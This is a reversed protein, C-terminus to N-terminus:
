FGEQKFSGLAADFQEKLREFDHTRAGGILVNLHRHRQELRFVFTRPIGGLVTDFEFRADDIGREKSSDSQMDPMRGIMKALNSSRFVSLARARLSDADEDDQGLTDSLWLIYADERPNVLMLMDNETQGHVVGWAAAPRDIGYPDDFGRSKTVTLSEPYQLKGRWVYQRLVSDIGFLGASAYAAIAIVTFGAGLIMGAQALRAGGVTSGRRTVRRYAVAGCAIAALTGVVTFAGILALLLSLVALGSTSTAPQAPPPAPEAVLPKNCDPCPITQGAFKDDIDLRAGCTCKLSIPM